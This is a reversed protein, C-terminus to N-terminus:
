ETPGATQMILRMTLMASRDTTKKLRETTRRGTQRADKGIDILSNIMMQRHWRRKMIMILWSSEDTPATKGKAKDDYILGGGRVIDTIEKTSTVVNNVDKNNKAYSKGSDNSKNEEKVISDLNEENM